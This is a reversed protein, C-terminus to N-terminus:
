CPTLLQTQSILGSSAAAPLMAYHLTYKCYSSFHLMLSTGFVSVTHTSLLSKRRLIKLDILLLPLPLRETRDLEKHAGLSYRALSRRVSPCWIGPACQGEESGSPDCRKHGLCQAPCPKDAAGEKMPLERMLLVSDPQTHHLERSPFSLRESPSSDKSIFPGTKYLPSLDSIVELAREAQGEWSM